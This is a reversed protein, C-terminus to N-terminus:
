LGALDIGMYGWALKTGGPTASGTFLGTQAVNTRYQVDIGTASIKKVFMHWYGLNYRVTTGVPPLPLYVIQFGRAMQVIGLDAAGPLTFTGPSAVSSPFDSVQAVPRMWKSSSTFAIQGDARKLRVGYTNSVNPVGADFIWIPFSTGVPGEVVVWAIADGDTPTPGSVMTNFANKHAIIPLSSAGGSIYVEAYSYNGLNGYTGVTTITRAERFRYNTYESDVQLYNNINRARLGYTAM